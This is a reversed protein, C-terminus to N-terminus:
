ATEVPKEDQPSLPQQAPPVATGKVVNTEVVATTGDANVTREYTVTQTEAPARPPRKPAGGMALMGLGALFWCVVSVVNASSASSWECEDSYIGDWASSPDIAQLPNTSCANSDLLLFTLGQFLTLVVAFLIGISKWLADSMFYLCNTLFVAVTALGGVVPVIISFARVAKWKSDIEVAGPLQVCVDRVFVRTDGGSTFTTVETKQLYWPGLSIPSLNPTAASESVSFQISDCWFNNIFCCIFAFCALCIPILGLCRSIIPLLLIV